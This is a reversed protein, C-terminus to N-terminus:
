ALMFQAETRWLFEFSDPVRGFRADRIPLTETEVRFHRYLVFGLSDGDWHPLM